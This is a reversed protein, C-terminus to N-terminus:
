SRIVENLSLWMRMNRCTDWPPYEVRLTLSQAGDPVMLWKRFNPGIWSDGYRGSFSQDVSQRRYLLVKWLAFGYGPSNWFAKTLAIWGKISQGSDMRKCVERGWHRAREYRYTPLPIAHAEEIPKQGCLERYLNLTKLANPGAAFLSKRKQAKTLQSDCFQSDLLVKEVARVIEDCEEPGFTSVADGGVEKLPDINSCVVQTGLIIAEAVPLGFGEFRSPYVLAKAGELLCRIELPSRYGLHM